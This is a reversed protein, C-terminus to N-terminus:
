GKKRSFNAPLSDSIDRKKAGLRKMQPMDEFHSHLAEYLQRMGKNLSGGHSYHPVALKNNRERSLKLREMPKEFGLSGGEALRPAGTSLARAPSSGNRSALTAGKSVAIGPSTGTRKAMTRGMAMNDSNPGSRTAESAGVSLAAGPTKRLSGPRAANPKGNTANGMRTRRM